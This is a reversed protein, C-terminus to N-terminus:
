GLADSAKQELRHIKKAELGPIFIRVAEMFDKPGAGGSRLTAEIELCDESCKVVDAFVVHPRIDVQKCKDARVRCIQLEPSALMRGMSAGVTCPDCKPRCRATIRFVSTNLRMLPSKVGEPVTEAEVVRIGVPLNANMRKM